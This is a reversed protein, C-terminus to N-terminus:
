PRAKRKFSPLISGTRIRCLYTLSFVAFIQRDLVPDSVLTFCTFIFAFVRVNFAIYVFMLGANRWRHSYYMNFSNALLQDSTRISCFQCESTAEPNVLYGGESAIYRNLYDQCSTGSPPLITLIEHPACEVLEHATAQGLLSEILYTFPSVRYMWKWWGLQDYPQLVGSFTLVFTFLLSFLLNGIEASPSFSAVAQGMTTYYIPNIVSLMLYTYGARSNEFGVTWFWTLFMISASLINWPIEVLMQTTLFATWSYMRSPRERIEYVNRLNIFPVMLQSALTVSPVLVMYISFMKNQMGQQSNDMKFYSFGILLGAAISLMLKGILYSPNRWYALNQRLFLEKVQFLWSVSCEARTETTVRQMSRGRAHISDIEQQLAAAESSNRWTMHWDQTSKATAGAGIVDLMYEAPNESAECTRGGNREFYHILTGANEGLNGFYVTEGGRKLLLIRDFAQFLEASPQHITCLIAQGQDALQRLFSVIAWASQSDLGSTPEDLFLLLEPKAALEVAITTRKRFEVNLSGISAEAYEILGCNRLCQEVYAEKEALPVSAPQRLKASFLLAERVTSTPVHTDMQQVYGTQAQFDDPLTNGNVFTDGTVVGSSTRKALVNLLTTKGAGSTGMLATLKGPAVYGSVDSLLTRDSEGHIPVTYRLHQWTFIDVQSSSDSGRTRTNGEAMDRRPQQSLSGKEEDTEMSARKGKRSGRKYLTLSSAQSTTSTNYEAFILLAITFGVGFACVIGVNRWLHSVKYHFSLDIFRAGDVFASGPQAGIADCVQNSLSLNEYGPGHPVLSDCAANVTRFENSLFAEFGYYLPNIYFIWRLAGIMDPKPIVFGSFVAFVLITVGALAQATAASKFAAALARFWSKMTLAIVCLILLFTFFQGASRQLGVMFYLIIGFITMLAVTVPMDVLTHALTEISPHYMAAKEHRAVVERQSYLAPIESAATLGACLVRLLTRGLLNLATALMNGRIIQVKRLMVASVQQPLTLMYPNRKGSRKAFEAQASSAYARACDTNGAYTDIYDQVDAANGRGIDSQKFYAAFEDASRPQCSMGPSPIRGCPDTVAVLFDPTTQRNAPEYGMGIFYDKACSAPGFYAMKGEYIVCVKDFHQFLSEGAQYISVVTALQMTDTAIRLARVFELATSADLGRTSNDWCGICARTALAEAISVRKKEGGSVGRLAADGVPTKRAHRLGFVTTLVNTLREKYISRTNNLRNRPTRTVAAFSLTQEVTLTPFHVDDEPCYQVDGRFHKGLDEPTIADYYVEGDVSHYEGRQNAITKLLTSCGAGPRGLVLLMEGPRVTGEFGTLIDKVPPKWSNRLGEFILFPNLQSGLTPIFSASAGIGRVRLDRFGVGLQRAQIRAEIRQQVFTQMTKEFDFSEEGVALTVDSRSRPDQTEAPGSAATLTERVLESVGEPDFFDISVRSATSIRRPPIWEDGFGPSSELSAELSSEFRLHLNDPPRLGYSDWNAERQGISQTALRSPARFGTDVHYTNLLAEYNRHDIGVDPDSSTVPIRLHSTRCSREKLGERAAQCERCRSTRYVQRELAVPKDAFYRFNGTQIAANDGFAVSRHSIASGCEGCFIRTVVDVDAKRERAMFCGSLDCPICAGTNGSPAVVSYEKVPGEITTDKKPALVNSSFPAGSTQKCDWCHCLIQDKFNDGNAITVTTKGCLCEGKITNDSM